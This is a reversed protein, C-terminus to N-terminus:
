ASVAQARTPKSEARYVKVARRIYAALDERKVLFKGRWLVAPIEGAKIIRRASQSSVALTSAVQDLTLTDTLPNNDM